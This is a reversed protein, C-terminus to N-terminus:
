PETGTPEASATDPDSAEEVSAVCPLGTQPFNFANSHAKREPLCRTNEKAKAPAAPHNGRAHANINNQLHHYSRSTTYENELYLVTTCVCEVSAFGHRADDNSHIGSPARWVTLRRRCNVYFDSPAEKEFVTRSRTRNAALPRAIYDAYRVVKMM